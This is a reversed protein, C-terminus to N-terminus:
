DPLQSCTTRGSGNNRDESIAWLTKMKEIELQGYAIKSGKIDEEVKKKKKKKKKSKEKL